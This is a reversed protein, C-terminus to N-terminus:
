LGYQFPMTLGEGYVAIGLLSSAKGEEACVAWYTPQSEVVFDLFADNGEIDDALLIAPRALYPYVLQFERMMNKYTHLSDHLFFDVKRISPLLRRAIRHSPGYYLKWGDKLRPPVLSGVTGDGSHTLPPLDISHLTGHGNQAIAHLLIASSAGNAVGTELVVDPQLVRCILYALRALTFDANYYAHFPAAPKVKDGASQTVRRLQELAHDALVKESDACFFGAVEAEINRAPKVLPECSRTYKQKCRLQVYAEVRDCFEVPHRPLLRMLSMIKASDM